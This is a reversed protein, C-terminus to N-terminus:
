VVRIEIGSGMQFMVSQSAPWVSSETWIPDPGCRWPLSKDRKRPVWKRAVVVTGNRCNNTHEHEACDHVHEAYGHAHVVCGRDHVPEVSREIRPARIHFRNCVPSNDDRSVRRRLYSMVSM